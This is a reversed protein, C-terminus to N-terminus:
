YVGFRKTMGKSGLGFFFVIFCSKTVSPGAIFCGNDMAGAKKPLNTKATGQNARRSMALLKVLTM